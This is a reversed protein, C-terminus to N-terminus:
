MNLFISLVGSHRSNLDLRPIQEIIRIIYPDMGIACVVYRFGIIKQVYTIAVITAINFRTLLIFKEPRIYKLVM